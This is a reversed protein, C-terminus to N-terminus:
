ESKIYIYPKISNFKKEGIGKVKIIQEIKEFPGHVNRHEIIRNALVPGVYPLQVLEEATATNIDLLLKQQILVGSANGISEKKNTGLSFYRDPYTQAGSAVLSDILAAKEKIQQEIKELHEKDSSHFGAKFHSEYLEIGSGVILGFLLFSIFYKEQKTFFDRM